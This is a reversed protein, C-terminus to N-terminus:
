KHASFLSTKIFSTMSLENSSCIMPYPFFISISIEQQFQEQVQSQFQTSLIIQKKDNLMYNKKLKFFYVIKSIKKM